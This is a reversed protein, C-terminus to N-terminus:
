AHAVGASISPTWAPALGPADAMLAAICVIVLLWLLVARQVLALAARISSADAAAGEGLPPRQQWQGHYPAAGGLQVGIAGAGAAMVPGANPSKWQRAQTRWCRLAAATHGVLAYGLATLRAPILNLVDDVRAAAWGFRRYRANRYGWMADLTNALRYLVVGPAGLLVAWFIAGFVADCGNELVSETAAAAVQEADLAQVDRSVVRAVAERAAPLDHRELAEAVPVAHEGLSRLGISLCALVAVLAVGLWPAVHALGRQLLWALAVLPMVAIVWALVGRMRGDGHLRAELWTAWRGFGVLPHWRRPEGLLRDALLALVMALVMSM